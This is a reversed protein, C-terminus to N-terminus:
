DICISVLSVLSNKSPHKTTRLDRNRDSCKTVVKMSRDVREVHEQETVREPHFIERRAMRWRKTELDTKGNRWNMSRLSDRPKLPCNWNSKHDMLTYNRCTMSRNDGDDIRAASRDIDCYNHFNSSVALMSRALSPKSSWDMAM